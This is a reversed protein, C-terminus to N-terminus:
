SSGSCATSMDTKIELLELNRLSTSSLILGKKEAAKVAVNVIDTFGNLTSEIRIKANPSKVILQMWGHAGDRRTSFYKLRLGELDHWLITRHMPGCVALGTGHIEIVSAHKLLLSITYVVFLLFIVILALSIPKMSPLLLIPVGTVALGAGARLYDQFITRISHRYKMTPPDSVISEGIALADFRPRKDHKDIKSHMGLM